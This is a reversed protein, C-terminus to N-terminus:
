NFINLPEKEYAGDLRIVKVMDSEVCGSSSISTILMANSEEIVTIMGSGYRNGRTVMFEGGNLTGLVVNVRGAKTKFTSSNKALETNHHHAAFGQVKRIIPLAFLYL